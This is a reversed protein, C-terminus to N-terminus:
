CSKWFSRIIRVLSDESIIMDKEQLKKSEIEESHSIIVEPRIVGARIQTSGNISAIKGNFHKFLNFTNQAMSIRGFGETIM